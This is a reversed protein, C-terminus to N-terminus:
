GGMQGVPRAPGLGSSLRRRSAISEDRAQKHVLYRRGLDKDGGGFKRVYAPLDDMSNQAAAKLFDLLDLLETDNPDGTFPRIEIGNQQQLSFAVPDHDVILM